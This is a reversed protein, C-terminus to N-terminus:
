DSAHPRLAISPGLVQQQRNRAGVTVEDTFHVRDGASGPQSQEHQRRHVLHEALDADGVDARHGLGVQETAARGVDVGVGDGAVDGPSPHEDGTGATRDAALEAALEGPELRGVQEHEVAVLAPQVGHLQRDVTPRQEVAVVQQEASM